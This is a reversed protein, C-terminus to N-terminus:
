QIALSVHTGIRRHLGGPLKCVGMWKAELAHWDHPCSLQGTLESM